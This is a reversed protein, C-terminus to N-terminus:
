TLEYAELLAACSQRDNFMMVDIISLNPIFETGFQKYPSSKPQIFSLNMGRDLFASEDYLSRGGPANIYCCARLEECIALIKEQGRLAKDKKLDSSIHWKVRIDLYDCIQRLSYILFHSLLRENQSFINEILPYVNLFQPAKCYSQHITKLIKSSYDSIYIEHILKNQSAKSLSLTITYPQDKVLIRNRNIWSKKIYNVDDYVVFSDVAKILQFYGIYPFFYPQMIAVKM